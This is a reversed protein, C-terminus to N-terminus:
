AKKGLEVVVGSVEDATQITKLNAKYATVARIQETTEAAIDPAAKARAANAAESADESINVTFAEAVRGASEEFKREAKKVGEVASQMAPIRM